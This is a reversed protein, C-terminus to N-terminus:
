EVVKRVHARGVYLTGTGAANSTWSVSCFGSALTGAPVYFNPTRMVMNATIDSPQDGVGTNTLCATAGTSVGDVTMSYSLNPLNLGTWGVIRVAAEAYYWAGVELTSNNSPTNRIYGSDSAAKADIVVVQNNGIADGDDAVTRATVSCVSTSAANGAHDVAWNTAVTGSARNSLLGPTGTQMLPNLQNQGPSSFAQSDTVASPLTNQVGPLMDRCSNLILTSLDWAAKPTFHIWDTPHVYGAKGSLTGATPDNIVSFFDWLMMKPQTRAYQRIWDNVALVGAAHTADGYAPHGSIVPCLTIAIISYNRSRLYDYIERLNRIVTAAPVGANLDNIGGFVTCFEAPYPTVGWDPHDIRELMGWTTDGGYAANQVIHFLEGGARYNALHMWGRSSNRNLYQVLMGSYAGVGDGRPRSSSPSPTDAPVTFTAAGGVTTIQHKGFYGPEAVRGIKVLQGTQSTLGVLTATGGTQTLNGFNFSGLDQNNETQSDGFLVIRRRAAGNGDKSVLSQVADATAASLM